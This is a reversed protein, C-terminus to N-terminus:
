ADFRQFATGVTTDSEVVEDASPSMLLFAIVAEDLDGPSLVMPQDEGRNQLFGTSAYLGAFCDAQLNAELSNDENGMRVQAAYAYQRALETAVAYDGIEGYLTPVLNQGDIYITDSAICYFSANVLDEGLDSSCVDSSWDSIRM